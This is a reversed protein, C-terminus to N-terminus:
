SPATAIRMPHPSIRTASRLCHTFNRSIRSGNRIKLAFYQDLEAGARENRLIFLSNAMLQENIWGASAVVRGPAKPGFSRVDLKQHVDALIRSGAVVSAGLNAATGQRGLVGPSSFALDASRIPRVSLTRIKAPKM